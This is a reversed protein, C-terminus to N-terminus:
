KRNFINKIIFHVYPKNIKMHRYMNKAFFNFFSLYLSSLSLIAVCKFFQSSHSFSKSWYTFHFPVFFDLTCKRTGCFHLGDSATPGPSCSEEYIKFCSYSYTYNVNNSFRQDKFPSKQWCLFVFIVNIPQVLLPKIM